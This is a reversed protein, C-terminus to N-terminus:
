SDEQDDPDVQEALKSADFTALEILTSHIEKSLVDNIDDPSKNALIQAMNHPISLMRRKFVTLMGGIMLEIDKAEHIQNKYKELRLEAFERKAKEHLTKEDWYAGKSEDDTQETRGGNKVYDIYRRINEALTYKSNDGRLLVGENALQIVRPRTVGLCAALGDSTVLLNNTDKIVPM